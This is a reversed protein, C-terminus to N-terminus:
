FVFWGVTLSANILLHKGKIHGLERAVVAKIEDVDLNEVLASTLIIYRRGPLIGTVMANARNSKRVVIDRVKIGCTECLPILEKRLEPPLDGRKGLRIRFEPYLAFLLLILLSYMLLDFWWKSTLSQPLYLILAWWLLGFSFIPALILLLVKCVAKVTSFPKERKGTLDEGSSTVILLILFASILFPLLVILALVLAQLLLPMTTNGIKDSMFDMFGTLVIAPIYTAL